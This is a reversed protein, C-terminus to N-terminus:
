TTRVILGLNWQNVAHVSTTVLITIHLPSGVKRIFLFPLFLQQLSLWQNSITTNM